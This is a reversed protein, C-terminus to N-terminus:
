NKYLTKISFKGDQAIHWNSYNTVAMASASVAEMNLINNSQEPLNPKDWFPPLKNGGSV